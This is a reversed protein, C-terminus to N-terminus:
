MKKNLVRFAIQFSIQQLYLACICIFAPTRYKMLLFAVSLLAFLIASVANSVSQAARLVAVHREDSKEIREQELKEASTRKARLLRISGIAMMAVGAGTLVGLATAYQQMDEPATWFTLLGFACSVLGLFFITWLTSKKINYKCLM